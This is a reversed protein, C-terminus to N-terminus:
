QYLILNVTLKILKTSHAPIADWTLVVNAYNMLVSKANKDTGSGVSSIQIVPKHQEQGRM